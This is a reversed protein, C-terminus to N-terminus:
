SVAGIRSFDREGTAPDVGPFLILLAEGMIERRDIQGIEPSRSDKSVGRNDGLVFVCGEEVILPFHVGEFDNTKSYIYPEDLVVGDVSVVGYEFNIDVKQGETAIVRKIIPTGNDYTSKSAVIIDGPEPDGAIAGNLLLVYDNHILTDYMSSGEVVAVRFFILFLAFLVSLAVVIDFLVPLVSYKVFGEAGQDEPLKYRKNVPVGGKRM